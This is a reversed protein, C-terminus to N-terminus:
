TASWRGDKRPADTARAEVPLIESRCAPCHFVGDPLRRMEPHGCECPHGGLADPLGVIDRLTRLAAAGVQYGRSDCRVGNLGLTVLEGSECSPCTLSRSTTRSFFKMATEMAPQGDTAPVRWQTGAGDEGFPPITGDTRNPDM